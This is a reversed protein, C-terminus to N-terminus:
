FWALKLGNNLRGPLGSARQRWGHHHARGVAGPTFENQPLLQTGAHKALVPGLQDNQVEVQCVALGDLAQAKM